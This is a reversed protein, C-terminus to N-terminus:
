VVDRRLPTRHSYPARPPNGHFIQPCPKFLQQGIGLIAGQNAFKRGVRPLAVEEISQGSVEPAHRAINLGDNRQPTRLTSVVVFPGASKLSYHSRQSILLAFVALGKRLFSSVGRNADIVSRPTLHVFDFFSYGCIYVDHKLFDASTQWVAAVM